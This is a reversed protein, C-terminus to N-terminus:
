RVSIRELIHSAVCRGQDFGKEIGTRYHIGGYLRSIGAESAANEFSTFSRSDLNRFRESDDTFSITGFMNTLIRASTESVISHGSIFEPFPPTQIFPKWNADIYKHIYTEPRM